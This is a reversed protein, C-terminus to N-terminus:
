RRLRRATFLDDVRKAERHAMEDEWAIRQAQRLETLMERASRAALYRTQQEARRAELIQLQESLQAKAHGLARSRAELAQHHVGLHLAQPDRARGAAHERLEREVHALAARMGQVEAAIAALAREEADEKQQRIALVAALPFLRPM